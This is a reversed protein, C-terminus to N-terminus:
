TQVLLVLNSFTLSLIIKKRFYQNKEEEEIDDGLGYFGTVDIIYLRIGFHWIVLM